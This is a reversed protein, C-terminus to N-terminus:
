FNFFFLIAILGLIGFLFALAYGQVKGSQVPKITESFAETIFATTNVVGNVINKDFWSSLAGITNFLIRQTVFQYVEDFYFKHYAFDYLQSISSSIKDSLNNKKRYFITAIIIAFLSLGVAM